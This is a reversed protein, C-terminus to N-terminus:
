ERRAFSEQVEAVVTGDQNSFTTEWVVFVMTGSRGTKTYVDKLHSSATLQDGAYVPAKPEVRQGAHMSTKGFQVKVDPLAVQRVLICPLTPPAVRREYGAAKAGEDSSFAPGTEGVSSNAQDIIESTIEFPGAKHEVGYLSRDYEVEMTM